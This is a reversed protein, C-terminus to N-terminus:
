SNENDVDMQRGRGSHSAEKKPDHIGDHNKYRDPIEGPVPVKFADQVFFDFTKLEKTYGKEEELM